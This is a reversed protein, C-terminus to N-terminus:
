RERLLRFGVLFNRHIPSFSGRSSTRCYAAHFYWGGGRMVRQSGGSPGQPAQQPLNEYPGFWDQCWEWVNGSMDYLGLENPQLRGVPQSQGGANDAYWAVTAPADSGAYPLGRSQGGGRAAYEWEAETPLRYRQGSLANLRAIYAQVQEWSVREVPCQDCDAHASPADGMLARWQAQTVEYVGMYFGELTVAHAPKEDDYCDPQGAPCGMYFSGGEVWNFAGALTDVYSAPPSAPQVQGAAVAPPGLLLLLCALQQWPRLAGPQQRCAQQLYPPLLQSLPLYHWM